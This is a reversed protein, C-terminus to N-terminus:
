TNTCFSFGIAPSVLLKKLFVSKRWKKSLSQRRSGFLGGFSDSRSGVPCAKSIMKGFGICLDLFRFRVYGGQKARRFARVVRCEEGWGGGALGDGRPRSFKKATINMFITYGM